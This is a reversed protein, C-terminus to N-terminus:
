TGELRSEENCRTMVKRVRLNSQMVSCTSFSLYSEIEQM